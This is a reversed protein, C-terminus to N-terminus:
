GKRFVQLNNGYWPTQPAIKLWRQSLKVSLEPDWSLCQCGTLKERWYSPLQENLHGMGGQGPTAATFLVIGQSATSSIISECLIEAAEPPLHEAVEWCLVLDAPEAFVRLSLDWQMLRAPVALQPSLFVRDSDPLCIDFGLAHIGLSAALLVLHGTGCGFDIMSGPKGIVDLAEIFCNESAGAQGRSVDFAARQASTIM